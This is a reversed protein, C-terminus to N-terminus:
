VRTLVATVFETSSCVPVNLVSRIAAVRVFDIIRLPVENDEVISKVASARVILEGSHWISVSVTLTAEPVNAEEEESSERVDRRKMPTEPIVASDEERMMAELPFSDIESTWKLDIEVSETGSTSAETVSILTVPPVCNSVIVLDEPSPPITLIDSADDDEEREKSVTSKM